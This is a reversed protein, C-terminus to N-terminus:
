AGTAPVFVVCACMKLLFACSNDANVHRLLNAQGSVQSGGGGGGKGRGKQRCIYMHYFAREERECVTKWSRM